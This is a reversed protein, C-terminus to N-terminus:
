FSEIFNKRNTETKTKKTRSTDLIENFVTLDIYKVTLPREIVLRITENEWISRKPNLSVPEGYKECFQSYVSYYDIADTNLKFIMTYLNENYFQFWARAIFFSGCTEILSTNKTLLLSVDKEGRYGFVPDNQLETKVTELSAGLQINRYSSPLPEQATLYCVTFICIYLIFCRKKNM